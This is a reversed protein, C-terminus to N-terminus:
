APTRGASARAACLFAEGLFREGEGAIEVAGVDATDFAALRVYAEDINLFDRSRQAHGEPLKESPRLCATFITWSSVSM